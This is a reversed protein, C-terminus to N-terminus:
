VDRICRQRQRFNKLEHLAAVDDCMTEMTIVVANHAWFFGHDELFHEFRLLMTDDEITRVTAGPMEIKRKQFPREVLSEQWIGNRGIEGKVTGRKARDEVQRRGHRFQQM